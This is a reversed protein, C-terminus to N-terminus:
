YANRYKAMKYKKPINVRETKRRKSDRHEIGHIKGDNDTNIYESQDKITMYRCGKKHIIEYSYYIRRYTIPESTTDCPNYDNWKEVELFVQNTEVSSFEECVLGPILMRIGNGYNFVIFDKQDSILYELIPKGINAVVTIPHLEFINLATEDEEKKRRV